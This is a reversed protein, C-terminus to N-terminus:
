SKSAFHLRIITMVVPDNGVTTKYTRYTKAAENHVTTSPSGKLSIVTKHCELQQCPVAQRHDGASPRPLHHRTYFCPSGKVLFSKEEASCLLTTLHMQQLQKYSKSSSSIPIWWRFSIYMEKAAMFTSLEQLHSLTQPLRHSCVCLKSWINQFWKDKTMKHPCGDSEM